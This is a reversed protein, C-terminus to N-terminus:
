KYLYELEISYLMFMINCIFTKTYWFLEVVKLVILNHTVSNHKERSITHAFMVILSPMSQSVKFANDSLMSGKKKFIPVRKKCSQRWILGILYWEKDDDM